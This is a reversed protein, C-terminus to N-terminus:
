NPFSLTVYFWIWSIETSAMIRSECIPFLEPTVLLLHLSLLDGAESDIKGLQPM